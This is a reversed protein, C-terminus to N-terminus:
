LTAGAIKFGFTHGKYENRDKQPNYQAPQFCRALTFGNYQWKEISAYLKRGDYPRFVGYLAAYTLGVIALPTSFIRLLDFYANELSAKLNYTKGKKPWFHYGILLKGIRYLMNVVSAIGHILPSGIFLLISKGQVVNTPENLYLRETTFDRVHLPKHNNPEDLFYSSYAEYGEENTTPTRVEEWKNLPCFDGLKFTTDINLYNM